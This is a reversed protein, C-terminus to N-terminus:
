HIGSIVTVMLHVVTETVHFVVDAVFAALSECLVSTQHGVVAGAVVQLLVEAVDTALSEVM